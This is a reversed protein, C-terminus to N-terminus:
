ERREWATASPTRRTSGGTANPLSLVTERGRWRRCRHRGWVALRRQRCRQKRCQLTEARTTEQWLPLEAINEIRSLLFRQSFNAQLTKGDVAHRVDVHRARARRIGCVRPCIRDLPRDRIRGVEQRGLPRDAHEHVVVRQVCELLLREIHRDDAGRADETGLWEERFAPVAVFEGTAADALGIDLGNQVPFRGAPAPTRQGTATDGHTLEVPCQQKVRDALFRIGSDTPRKGFAIHQFPQACIERRFDM